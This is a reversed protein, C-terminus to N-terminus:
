TLSPVDNPMLIYSVGSHKDKGSYYLAGAKSTTKFLGTLTVYKDKGEKNEDIFKLTFDPRTGKAVRTDTSADAIAATASPAAAGPKSPYSPRQVSM